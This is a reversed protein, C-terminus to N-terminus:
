FNNMHKQWLIGKIFKLKNLDLKVRLENYHSLISNEERMRTDLM